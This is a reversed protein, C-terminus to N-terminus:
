KRTGKRNKSKGTRKSTKKGSSKKGSSKKGSSSNGYLLDFEEMTNRRGATRSKSELEARRRNYEEIYSQNKDTVTSMSPVDSARRPQSAASQQRQPRANQQRKPRASSQRSAGAPEASARRSSKKATKKAPKKTEGGGTGSTKVRARPREAATRKAKKKKKRKAERVEEIDITDSKANKAEDLLNNVIYMMILAIPVLILLVFVIKLLTM